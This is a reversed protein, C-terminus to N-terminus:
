FKLEDGLVSAIKNYVDESKIGTTDGFGIYEINISLREETMGLFVNLHKDIKQKPPTRNIGIETLIFKGKEM